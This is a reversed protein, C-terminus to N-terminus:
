PSDYCLTRFRLKKLKYQLDAKRQALTRKTKQNQGSLEHVRNLVDQEKNNYFGYYRKKYYGKYYGSYYGTSKTDVKNLIVGLIKCDTMELQKKVDELRTIDIASCYFLGDNYECIRAKVPFCTHNNRYLSTYIIDGIVNNKLEVGLNGYDWTNALGGYIESGQFIYGYNKCYNTLEEMTIKNEM